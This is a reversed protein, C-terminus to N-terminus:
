TSGNLDKVIKQARDAETVPIFVINCLRLAKTSKVTLIEVSRGRVTKARVAAEIDPGFPDLGVVCITLPASSDRYSASPWEIFKAFNYLFALKVQYEGSEGNQSFADPFACSLLCCLTVGFCARGIRHSDSQVRTRRYGPGENHPQRFQVNM